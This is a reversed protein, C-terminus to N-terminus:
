YPFIANLFVNRIQFKGRKFIGWVHVNMTTLENIYRMLVWLNRQNNCYFRIKSVSIKYSFIFGKENTSLPTSSQINKRIKM